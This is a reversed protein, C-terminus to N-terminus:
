PTWVGDLINNHYITGTGSDSYLTGCSNIVNQLITTNTSPADYIFIGYGRVKNIYNDAVFAYSATVIGIGKANTGQINNITNQTASCNDAGIHIAYSYAVNTNTITNGIAKSFPANLQISYGSCNVLSNGIVTEFMGGTWACIQNCNVLSNGIASNYYATTGVITALEIGYTNVFTSDSVICYSGGAFAIDYFLNNTFTCKSVIWGHGTQQM